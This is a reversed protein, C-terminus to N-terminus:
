QLLSLVQQPRANAQALISQSAQQLVQARSLSASESAFDADVIRSRAASANESVNSLNSVTFDLRNNVAGLESRISNVQELANDVATIADNAGDQTLVSINSIASGTVAESLSSNLNSLGTATSGTDTVEVSLAANPNISNLEISANITQVDIDGDAGGSTDAFNIGLVIGSAVGNDQGVDLNIAQNASLSLQGNDDIAAVVGTSAQQGNIDAVVQDLDDLDTLTVEFSNINLSGASPTASVTGASIGTGLSNILGSQNSDDGLVFANESTFSLEGDDNVSATVGLNATSNVATAIDEATINGDATQGAGVFIDTGNISFGASVSAAVFSGSSGALNEIDFGLIENALGQDAAALTGNAAFGAVTITDASATNRFAITGNDDVFAEAQSSAATLQTNIETVIDAQNAVAAQNNDFTITDAGGGDNVTFTFFNAATLTASNTADGASSNAFNLQSFATEPPTFAATAEVSAATANGDFAFSQQATVNAVVGTQDSIDNINQVTGALGEGAETAAVSVGNIVVDGTAIQTNQAASDLQTGQLDGGSVRQLGLADLDAQTGNAGLGISIDSGDDSTLALSGTLLAADTAGGVFETTDSPNNGGQDTVDGASLGLVSDLTDGSVDGDTFSLGIADGTDNSLVLGGADNTSATILGGTRTNIQSVLDDLGTSETFSFDTQTGDTSNFVSLTLTDNAANIVGTGTTGAEVVNIASASVGAINNNIDDVVDQLNDTAGDFSGLSQGNITIDGEDFTLATNDTANIATLDGTRAGTVDSTTAGLGLSDTSVSAISFSITQGANAGVQLDVEGLSGDLINQGNFSTTEAIRDLEEVLQQVEADLSARDGEGFIGNASQVALERVRQLINTSEDLAGEATQILSIGDNANRVAQDLGRIQATQRNSIALGAADDAASNIRRGSALRESAQDLEAGASTLQRQANLSAINSNVVLTM